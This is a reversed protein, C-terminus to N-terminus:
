TGQTGQKKENPGNWLSELWSKGIDFTFDLLKDLFCLAGRNGKGFIHKCPDEDKDEKKKEAQDALKTMDPMNPLRAADVAGSAMAMLEDKEEKGDGGGSGGSNQFADAALGAAADANDQKAAEDSKRYADLFGLGRGGAKKEQEVKDKLSSPAAKTNSRAYNGGSGGGLSMSVGGGGGVSATSSRSFSGKQTPSAPSSARGYSARASARAVAMQRQKAAAEYEEDPPAPVGEEEDQAQREEKEEVSFLTSILDVKGIDHYKASALLEKEAEDNNFPLAALDFYQEKYKSSNDKKANLLPVALSIIFITIFICAGWTYMQRKEDKKASAISGGKIVLAM